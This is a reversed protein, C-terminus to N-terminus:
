KQITLLEEFSKDEANFICLELVKGMSIKIRSEASLRLTLEELSSIAERSLRYTKVEFEQSEILGIKEEKNTPANKIHLNSKGKLKTM